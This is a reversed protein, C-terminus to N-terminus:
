RVKISGSRKNDQKCSEIEEWWIEIAWKLIKKEKDV